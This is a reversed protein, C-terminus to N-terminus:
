FIIFSPLAKCGRAIRRFLSPSVEDAARVRVEDQALARRLWTQRAMVRQRMATLKCKECFCDHYKCYRKHGRLAIKLRHNHCRACNPPTRRSSTNKSSSSAKSDSQASISKNDGNDMSDQSHEMQESANSESSQQSALKASKNQEIEERYM